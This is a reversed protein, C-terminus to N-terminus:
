VSYVGGQRLSEIATQTTDFDDPYHILKMKQRIEAPLAALKAYETHQGMNTEHVIVDAVSLWEILTVDFATDASFGICRGAAGIRFATTPIYHITPRCEISFPGVQVPKDYDLPTYDFYDDFDRHHLVGDEETADAMSGALKEGWLREHVVPHALLRVRRDLMFYSYFAFGELGSCHDAHLHTLAVADIDAVDLSVGTSEGAERMMKRIPHPCDVLLRFGEAELVLSSSYYRASFADGVGLPIFTITGM